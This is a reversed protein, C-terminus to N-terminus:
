RLFLQSEEDDDSDGWIEEEMRKEGVEKIVTTKQKGGLVIEVMDEDFHDFIALFGAWGGFGLDRLGNAESTVRYASAM